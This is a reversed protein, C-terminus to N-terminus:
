VAVVVRDGVMGMDPFGDGVTWGSGRKPCRFPNKNKTRARALRLIFFFTKGNGTLQIPPVVAFRACSINLDIKIKKNRRHLKIADVLCVYM